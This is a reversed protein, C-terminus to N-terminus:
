EGFEGDTKGLEHAHQGLDAGLLEEPTLLVREAQVLTPKLRASLALGIQEYAPPNDWEGRPRLLSV